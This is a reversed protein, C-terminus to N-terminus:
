SDMSISLTGRVFLMKPKSAFNKSDSKKESSDLQSSNQSKLSEIKIFNPSGRRAPEDNIKLDPPM